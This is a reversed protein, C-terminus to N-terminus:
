HKNRSKRTGRKKHHRRKKKITHRKKSKFFESLHRIIQKSIIEDVDSEKKGKESVTYNYRKMHAQISSIFDLYDMDPNFEEYYRIAMDSYPMSFHYPKVNIYYVNDNEM